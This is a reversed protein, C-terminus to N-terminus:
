DPRGYLPFKKSTWNEYIISYSHFIFGYFLSSPHAHIYVDVNFPSSQDDM